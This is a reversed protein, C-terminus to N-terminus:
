LCYQELKIFQRVVTGKTTFSCRRHAPIVSVTQIPAMQETIIYYDSYYNINNLFFM